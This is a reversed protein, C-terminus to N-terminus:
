IGGDDQWCVLKVVCHRNRWLKVAWYLITCSLIMQSLWQLWHIQLGLRSLGLVLADDCFSLLFPLLQSFFSHVPKELNVDM